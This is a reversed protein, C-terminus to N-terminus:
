GDLLHGIILVTLTFSTLGVFYCILGKFGNLIKNGKFFQGIGWGIYLVGILYGKDIIAFPILKDVSGFFAFLLMGTGVVYCLLTLIEFINYGSRLFFLKIWLAIFVSVLINAYGYNNSIWNFILISTDNGFSYNIYGDEFNLTQQFLTYTLSCIIIYVIPKVLRKRDKHIFTRINKGPRILLERITFFIGKDFNLVSRVESIIYNGDIRKVEHPNDSNSLINHEIERTQTKSDTTDTKSTM